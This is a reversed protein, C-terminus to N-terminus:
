WSYMFIKPIICVIYVAPIKKCKKPKLKKEMKTNPKMNSPNAAQKKKGGPRKEITKKTSVEKDKKDVTKNELRGIAPSAQTKTILPLKPINQKLDRERKAKIFFPEPIEM